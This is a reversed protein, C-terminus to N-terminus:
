VGKAPQLRNGDLGRVDLDVCRVVVDTPHALRACHLHRHSALAAAAERIVFVKSCLQSCLEFGTRRFGPKGMPQNHPQAHEQAGFSSLQVPLQCISKWAHARAGCLAPGVLAATRRCVQLTCRPFCWRQVGSCTRMCRFRCVLEVGFFDLGGAAGQEKGRSSGGVVGIAKGRRGRTISNYSLLGWLLEIWNDCLWGGQKELGGRSARSM